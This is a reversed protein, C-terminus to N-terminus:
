RVCAALKDILCLSPQQKQQQLSFFSVLMPLAGAVRILLVLFYPHYSNLFYIIFSLHELEQLVKIQLQELVMSTLLGMLKICTRTPALVVSVHSRVFSVCTLVISRHNM